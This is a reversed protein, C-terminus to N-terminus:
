FTLHNVVENVEILINKQFELYEKIIEENGERNMQIVFFDKAPIRPDYFAFNVINVSDNVIMYQLGQEYYDDPIQNTLYAELHRSSSLCKAEVVENESVVGDPSIAINENDDRMWIVLDTQVKKSTNQEFMKLAIPELRTGRAMPTENPIMGDFEDPNVSLKEAILEYFGIKKSNIKKSYIDGLRSGTIKGKRSELWSQRDIRDFQLIKM